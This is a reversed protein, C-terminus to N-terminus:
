VMEPQREAFVRFGVASEAGQAGLEVTSPPTEASIAHVCPQTALSAMGTALVALYALLQRPRLGM